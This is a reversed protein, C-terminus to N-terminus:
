FTRDITIKGSGICPLCPIVELHVTEDACTSLVSVASENGCDGDGWKTNELMRDSKRQSLVSAACEKCKGTLGDKYSKSRHYKAASLSRRCSGCVQM